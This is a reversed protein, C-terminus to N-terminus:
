AGYIFGARTRARCACGRVTVSIPHFKGDPRGAPAVGIVYQERLDAIIRDIATPIDRNTHVVTTFGGAVDTISRLAHEDLPLARRNGEVGIAYVLGESRTVADVVGRLREIASINVRRASDDRTIYRDDPMEDNGDSVIVVARRRASASDLSALSNRVADYLATYGGARVPAADSLDQVATEPSSSWPSIVYPRDDFGVVSVEDESQLTEVLRRVADRAYEFREGNMSSSTDLAVVLSLPVRETAFQIIPLGRGRGTVEFAAPPLGTVSRGDGDTVVVTLPVLDVSSRFTQAFVLAGGLLFSAAARM